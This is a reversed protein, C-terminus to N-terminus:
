KKKVLQLPFPDSEKKLFKKGGIVGGGCQSFTNFKESGGGKLELVGM